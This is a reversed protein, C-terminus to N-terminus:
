RPNWLSTWQRPEGFIRGMLERDRALDFPVSERQDKAYQWVPRQRYEPPEDSYRPIVHAHLILGKNGLVSCNMRVAGTVKLIADGLAAMDLLFRSRADGTVDNLSPVVPDALLLCYARLFQSDGLVVWGSQLRCIVTPNEGRRAADVRKHRLDDDGSPM